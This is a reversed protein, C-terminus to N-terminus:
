PQQTTQAMYNNVRAKQVHLGTEHAFRFGFFFSDVRFRASAREPMHTVMAAAAAINKQKRPHTVM